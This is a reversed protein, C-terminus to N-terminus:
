HDHKNFWGLPQCPQQSTLRAPKCQRNRHALRTIGKERLGGCCACPLPGPPPPRRHSHRPVNSKAPGGDRGCACGPGSGRQQGRGPGRCPLAPSHRTRRGRGSPAGSHKAEVPIAKKIKENTESLASLQLPRICNHHHQQHQLTPTIEAVAVAHARYRQRTLQHLVERWHVRDGTPRRKDREGSSHGEVSQQEDGRGGELVRAAALGAVELVILVHGAVTQLVRLLPGLGLRGVGAPGAELLAVPDGVAVGLVLLRPHPAQCTIATM